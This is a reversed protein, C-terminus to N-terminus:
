ASTARTRARYARDVLDESIVFFALFGFWFAPFAKKNFTTRSSSIKKM